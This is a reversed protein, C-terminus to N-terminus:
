LEIPCIGFKDTITDPGNLFNLFDEIVEAESNYKEGNYDVQLIIGAEYARYNEAFGDNMFLRMFYGIKTCQVFKVLETNIITPPRNFGKLLKLM